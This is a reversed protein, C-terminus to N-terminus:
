LRRPLPDPIAFCGSQWHRFLWGVPTGAGVTTLDLANRARRKDRRQRTGRWGARVMREARPYKLLYSPSPATECPRGSATPWGDSEAKIRAANRRVCMASPERGLLARGPSFPVRTPHLCCGGFGTVAGAVTLPSRGGIRWQGRQDPLHPSAWVRLTLLGAMSAVLWRAPHGPLLHRHVLGKAAKTRRDALM